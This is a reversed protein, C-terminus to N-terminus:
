EVQDNYVSVDPMEKLIQAPQDDLPLTRNRLDLLQQRKSDGYAFLYTTDLRRLLPFTTTIRERGDTSHYFYALGDATVAATHPLIGSIHGDPGMGLQGITIDSGSLYHELNEAFRKAAEEAPSGDLVPILKGQKADFGADLLQQVNSDEHGVPGYREDIPMVVLRSTMEVPLGNMTQVALPINSGGSFFWLVRRGEELEQRIRQQLAQVVEAAPQKMFRMYM